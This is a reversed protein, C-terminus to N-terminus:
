RAEPSGPRGFRADQASKETEGQEPDRFVPGFDAGILSEQPNEVAKEV